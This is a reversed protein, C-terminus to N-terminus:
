GNIAESFFTDFWQDFADAEAREFYKTAYKYYHGAAKAAQYGSDYRAQGSGTGFDTFSAGELPQSKVHGLVEEHQKAAYEGDKGVAYATLTTQYGDPIERAPDAGISNALARTAGTPAYKNAALEVVVAAYKDLAKRFNDPKFLPDKDTIPRSM